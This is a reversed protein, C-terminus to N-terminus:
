MFSLPHPPPAVASRIFAHPSIKRDKKREGGFMRNTRVFQDAASEPLCIRSTPREVWKWMSQSMKNKEIEWSSFSLLPPSQRGRYREAGRREGARSMALKQEAAACGKHSGGCGSVGGVVRRSRRQRLKALPIVCGAGHAVTEGAATHVKRSLPSRSFKVGGAATRCRNEREGTKQFPVASFADEM